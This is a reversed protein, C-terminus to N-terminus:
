DSTIKIKPPTRLGSLWGLDRDPTDRQQHRKDQAREPRGHNSVEAVEEDIQLCHLSIQQHWDRAYKEDSNQPFSRRIGAHKRTQSRRRHKGRDKHVVATDSEHWKQFERQKTGPEM